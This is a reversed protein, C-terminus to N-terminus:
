YWEDPMAAKRNAVFETLTAYLTDDM